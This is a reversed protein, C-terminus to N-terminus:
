AKRFENGFSEKTFPKGNAGVIFALDGCPGAALTDALEPLIPV